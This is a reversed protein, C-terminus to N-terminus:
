RSPRSSGTGSRAPSTSSKVPLHLRSVSGAAGGAAGRSTRGRPGARCARRPSATDASRRNGAEAEAGALHPAQVDAPAAVASNDDLPQRLACAAVWGHRERRRVAARPRPAARAPPAYAEGTQQNREPGVLSSPSASRKWWSSRARGVVRHARARQDEVAPLRDVEVVVQVPQSVPRGRRSPPPRASRGPRRSTEGAAAVVRPGRRSPPPCSRRARPGGAPRGHGIAPCPTRRHTSGSITVSSESRAAVSRRSSGRGDRAAGAGRAGTGSSRAFLSAQCYRSSQRSVRDVPLCELEQLPVVVPAARLRAASDPPTSRGPAAGPAPGQVPQDVCSLAAVRASISGAGTSTAASPSLPPGITQRRGASCCLWGRQIDASL